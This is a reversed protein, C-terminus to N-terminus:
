IRYSVFTQSIVKLMSSKLKIKITKASSSTTEQKDKGLLCKAKGDKTSFHSTQHESKQGRQMKMSESEKNEL